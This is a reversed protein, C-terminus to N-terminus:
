IIDNADVPISLAKLEKVLDFQWKGTRDFPVFLVGSYDSPIELDKEMENLALV